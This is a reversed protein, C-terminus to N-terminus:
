RASRSRRAPRRTWSGAGAGCGGRGGCRSARRRGARPRGRAAGGRRRAPGRTPSPRAASARGAVDDADEAGDAEEPLLPPHLVLGDERQRHEAVARDADGRDGGHEDTDRHEAPEGGQREVQLDDLARRGGLGAQEEHRHGEADHHARDERTLDDGAGAAVPHERDDARRQEGTRQEDEVVDREVGRQPLRHDDHDEEASPRPKLKWGSVRATCFATGCCCIPTAVDVAVKVRCIPPASPM